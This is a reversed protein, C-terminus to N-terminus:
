RPAMCSPLIHNMNKTEECTTCMSRQKFGLIKTWVAGIMQTSHVTKFLFQQVCLRITRKRISKWLTEDKESNRTLNKIANRMMEMNGLMAQRPAVQTRERIGKYAVAQMLTALKAGQLNFDKPIITLIEDM